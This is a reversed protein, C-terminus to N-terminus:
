LECVSKHFLDHLKQEIPQDRHQRLDKCFLCNNEM